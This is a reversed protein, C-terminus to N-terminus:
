IFNFCCKKKPLDNFDYYLQDIEYRESVDKTICKEIISKIRKNKLNVTM